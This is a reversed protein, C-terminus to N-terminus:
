SLAEARLFADYADLRGTPRAAHGMSDAMALAIGLASAVRAAVDAQVQFVDDLAGDYAGLGRSTPAGGSPGVEVLEPSVQVRSGAGAPAWRVTGTLLYRVGLARAAGRLSVGGGAGRFQLSSGRAI